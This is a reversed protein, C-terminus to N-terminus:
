DNFYDVSADLQRSLDAAQQETLRLKTNVVQMNGRGVLRYVYRSNPGATPLEDTKGLFTPPDPNAM